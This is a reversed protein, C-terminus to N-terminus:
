KEIDTPTICGTKSINGEALTYLVSRETPFSKFVIGKQRRLRQSPPLKSDFRGDNTFLQWDSKKKQRNASLTTQAM